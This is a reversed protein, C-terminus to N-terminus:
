QDDKEQQRAAAPSQRPSPFKPRRDTVRHSGRIHSSLVSRVYEPITMKKVKALGRVRQWLEEDSRAVKLIRDTESDQGDIPPPKIGLVAALRLMTKRKPIRRGKEFDRILTLGVGLERALEMQSFGLERRKKRADTFYPM